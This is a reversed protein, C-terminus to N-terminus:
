VDVDVARLDSWLAEPVPSTVARANAWAEAPSQMGVVACRVAPHRLVFRLAATPLPVGHRACVEALSRARAVVSPPAPRYRYTAAASPASSALLGSGFVSAAVVDVGLRSCLPLLSEAAPRALLSYGGAVMVVDLAGTAVLTELAAVDMSGAGVARVVGEDRLEALAPVATSRAEDLRQEPDHLYLVDVRDLGLRTLSEDLSRRIGDRSLDWVREHTAPVHFGPDRGVVEGAVPRLLRGAKTSVVYSDRPYARLAAGLRRESLGLGYHPATDFYRVGADWAAAVTAAANEDSVPGSLNGISAAGFGLPGPVRRSM